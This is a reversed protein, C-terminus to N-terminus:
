YNLSDSLGMYRRPGIGLEGVGQPWISFVIAQKKLSEDASFTLGWFMRHYRRILTIDSRINEGYDFDFQQSFVVTYRPDLVYTAAFMFANSGKEGLGNEVRRLYRNGVYYSMDPWRLRSFGVDFQQVVGSQIDYNMDSLVATTDSMRWMYDFGFYNRRPGYTTSSRRDQATALGSFRDVLPISPDNWIFRDPGASSDGSNNVWAVDMNLRMWDVTRQNDGEGRKTQLRQSIGAYLTDRQEVAPDNEVFGVAAAHPRVIHRLQKLDWVKSEVNPYVKWYQTSARVGGEGIWATDEKGIAQGDINTAFGSGDEYAFTGAIFPVAKARGIALPMDLEVRESAFTFFDESLVSPESRRRFRGLVGDNYLTLRDDMLSEGTLHHDISPLEELQTAFDNIRAKGSVSVGWNDEIRKLHALTEQEKGVHHEGRYYAELFNEDSIYSVESTLQWNYPLFQRHLWRFRGRLERPPELNRRSPDRGLDDEGSDDIMYGLISGFNDGRSYDIDVGTGVGRKSYYDLGLTSKTGESEQVGLLRSLYWRTEVLAGWDSDHGAHISKIPLDPRELNGRMFPWYLVTREGMKMSVDYMQADYSRDSVQGEQEDVTTTDTIIVLSADLSLQPLYFESTTLTVHEGAFRNEALQRLRGARVYIPIGRKSDFSRMEANAALAKNDDFDYYLEDARITREGETMVVDGSVYISRVVGSALFDSFGDVTEPSEVYDGLKEESYWIVANDFQLELLGGKDRRQSLYFRGMVTVVYMGEGEPTREVIPSEGIPSINVPYRFGREEEDPERPPKTPESPTTRVPEEVPREVPKERGVGATTAEPVWADAEVAKVASVANRYLALGRAEGSTRREATLLVGGSVGFRVVMARGGEITTESLDAMDAGQSKEVSLNGDLYAWGNYDTRVQNRFQRSEAELWVVARDSRFQNGGISMSFKDRLILIHRLAGEADVQHSVVERGTLHLDHGLFAAAADGKVRVEAGAKDSSIASEV